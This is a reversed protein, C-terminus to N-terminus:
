RRFRLKAVRQVDFALRQVGLAVDAKIGGVSLDIGRPWQATFLVEGNADYVDAKLSEDNEAPRNLM